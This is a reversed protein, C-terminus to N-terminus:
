PFTVIDFQADADIDVTVTPPITQREAQGNAELTYHVTYNGPTLMFGGPPGLDSTSFPAPNAPQGVATLPTGTAPDVLTQLFALPVSHTAASYVDINGTQSERFQYQVEYAAGAVAAGVGTSIAARVEYGITGGKVTVIAKSNIEFQCSIPAAVTFDSTGIVRAFSTPQRRGATQRKRATVKVSLDDFAVAASSANAPGDIKSAPLPAAPGYPVGGGATIIDDADDARGEGVAKQTAAAYAVACAVGAPAKPPRMCSGALVALSCAILCFGVRTSIMKLVGRFPTEVTGAGAGM